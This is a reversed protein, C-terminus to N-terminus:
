EATWNRNLKVNLKNGQLGKVISHVDKLVVFVGKPCNMEDIM